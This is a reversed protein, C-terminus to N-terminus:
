RQKLLMKQVINRECINKQEIQFKKQEHNSALFFFFLLSTIALCITRPDLIRKPNNQRKVTSFTVISEAERSTAHNCSDITTLSHFDRFRVRPQSLLLM